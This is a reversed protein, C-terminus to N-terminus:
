PPNPKAVPLEPARQMSLVAATRQKITSSFGDAPAFFPVTNAAQNFGKEEKKEGNGHQDQPYCCV